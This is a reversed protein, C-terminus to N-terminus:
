AFRTPMSTPAVSPSTSPWSGSSRGYQESLSGHDVEIGKPRIINRWNQYM